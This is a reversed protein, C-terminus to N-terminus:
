VNSIKGSCNETFCAIEPQTVKGRLYKNEAGVSWLNLLKMNKREPVRSGNVKAQQEKGAKSLHNPFAKNQKM